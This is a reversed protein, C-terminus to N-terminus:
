HALARDSINSLVEPFNSVWKKLNIGGLELHAILDSSLQKAEKISNSGSILDDVYFNERVVGSAQPFYVREYSALHQLTCVALFSASVTGYTM